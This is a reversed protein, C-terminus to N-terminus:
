LDFIYYMINEYSKINRLVSLKIELSFGSTGVFLWTLGIECLAGCLADFLTLVDSQLYINMTQLYINLDNNCILFALPGLVSGQICQM